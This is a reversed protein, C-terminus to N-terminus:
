WGVRYYQYFSPTNTYGTAYRYTNAFPDWYVSHTPANVYPRIYTGQTQYGSWGWPTATYNYNNFTRYGYPSSYYNYGSATPGVPFPAVYNGSAYLGPPAALSVSPMACLALGVIAAFLIRKM